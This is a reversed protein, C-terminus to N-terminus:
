IEPIMEVAKVKKDDIIKAYIQTTEIDKHGLLSKVTYLDAGYSILLTANTHRSTHFSIHKSIGASKAWKGIIWNLQAQYPLDFVEGSAKMPGLVSLANASLPVYILGGTKIMTAQVQYGKDTARIKEWRLARVDSIRLGTFCSFLFARKAEEVACPADVLKRVEELTLYERETEPRKPRQSREIRGIPNENMRDARYANNFVTNLNAFYMHITGQSLGSDKLHRCFDLVYNKDVTLLTTKKGYDVLWKRIKGLTLAYSTKGQSNYFVIQEDIYDTLRMDRRPKKRFGARGEQLELIRKAKMAEALRITKLNLAKDVKNKEPILYMKLFERTRVGDIMYDLYLSEGGGKTARRRLTVLEKNNPHCHLAM